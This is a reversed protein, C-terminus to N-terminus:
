APTYILEYTEGEVIEVGDVGTMSVEGDIYFAWYAGDKEYDARVGNVKKIYLGYDTEDGKVIKTERLSKGLNTEDTSVTLTIDMDDAVVHLYYTNKGEGIECDETYVPDENSVDDDKKCGVLSFVLVLALLLALLKKM